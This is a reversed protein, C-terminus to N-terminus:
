AAAAAPTASDTNNVSAATVPNRRSLLYIVVAIVVWAVRVHHPHRSLASVLGVIAGVIVAALIGKLHLDIM